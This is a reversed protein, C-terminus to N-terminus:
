EAKRILHIELEEFLVDSNYQRAITPNLSGEYTFTDTLYGDIKPDYYTITMTDAFPAIAAVFETSYMSRIRFTIGIDNKPAKVIHRNYAADYYDNVIIPSDDVSYSPIVMYATPYATGDITLYTGSFAM